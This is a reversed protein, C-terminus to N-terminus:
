KKFRRYKLMYYVLYGVIMIFGIASVVVGKYFLNRPSYELIYTTEHDSPPIVWANAYDDVKIHTNKLVVTVTKERYLQWLPSYRENFLLISSVNSAGINLRYKSPDIKTYAINPNGLDVTPINKIFFVTPSFIENVEISDIRPEEDDSNCIYIVPDKSEFQPSYYDRFQRNQKTLQIDREERSYFFGHKEDRTISGDEILLSLRQDKYPNDIEIRYTKQSNFNTISGILCSRQGWIIDKNQVGKPIYLNPLGTFVMRLTGLILPQGPIIFQPGLSAPDQNKSMQIPIKSNGVELLISKPLIKEGKLNLPLTSKDIIFEAEQNPALDLSYVKENDWITRDKLIPNYLEKLQRANWITVLIQQKITGAIQNSEASDIYRSLGREVTNVLQLARRARYFDNEFNPVSKILESAEQFYISIDNISSLIAEEEEELTIMSQVESTRRLIFGYYAEVKENTNKANILALKERQNKFTYLPSNPLVQVQPLALYPESIDLLCSQCEYNQIVESVLGGIRKSDMTFISHQGFNLIKQSIGDINVSVLKDINSFKTSEVPEIIYLKWEGFNNVKQFLSSDEIIKYQSPSVTASWSMDSLVDNRLLLFGVNLRKALSLFEDNNNQDLAKYLRNLWLREDATLGSDNSIVPMLTTIAPLTSLSWYGWEYADNRWSDNLPPVLLVRRDNFDYTKAWDTFNRVYAPIEVKTMLNERWRFITNPQFLIYHFALWSSVTLFSLTIAFINLIFQSIPRKATIKHIYDTVIEILQNMAFALLLSMGLTFVIGFKYYPSRFISFISINDFMVSYIFGLPPHTGATFFIGVLSLLGFFGILRKQNRNKTLFFSLFSLMPLFFSIIILFSSTLYKGAYPHLLNAMNDSSYWDPVGQFRLLDILSTRQSIYDLWAKNGALVGTDSLLAYDGNLFTHIYPIISYSNLLLYGILSFVLFYLFNKYSGLNRDKFGILTIYLILVMLSVGIGGYLPLGLWSGGNFLFFIISVLIAGLIPSLTKELVKFSITLLLLLAAFLGFKARELIFVSQFIYFNFTIFIPFLIPLLKGLKDKLSYSFIFGSVFLLALWFFLSVRNGAFPVGALESLLYDITHITISGFHQSNDGGFNQHSDWAYFRSKLFENADVALGSDHGVITYGAPLWIGSMVWLLLLCIVLYSLYLFFLKLNNM